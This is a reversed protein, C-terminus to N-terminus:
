RTRPRDSGTGAQDPAGSQGPSFRRATRAAAATAEGVTFTMETGFTAAASGFGGVAGDLWVVLDYQGPPLNGAMLISAPEGDGDQRGWSFVITGERSLMIQTSGANASAFTADLAYQMAAGAVSFQIALSTGAHAAGGVGDGQASYQATASASLTMTASRGDAAFGPDASQTIFASQTSSGIGEYTCTKSSLASITANGPVSSADDDFVEGSCEDSLSGTEAFATSGRSLFVLLGGSAVAASVQEHGVAIGNKTALIDVVVQTAGAAATIMTQTRGDLGTASQVPNASGGSVTYTVVAGPLPVLDGPATEQAVVVQLATPVEPSVQAPFDHQLSTAGRFVSEEVGIPVQALTVGGEPSFLPLLLQAEILMGLSSETLRRVVATFFGAANTRGLVEFSDGFHLNSGLMHVSFAADQREGGIELALDVDISLDENVPMPDALVIGEVVAHACLGALTQEETLGNEASDLGTTSALWNLELIAILVEIEPQTTCLQEKLNAIGDRLKVAMLGQAAAIDDVLVEFWDPADYQQAFGDALSYWRLYEQIIADRLSLGQGGQIAPVVVDNLYSRLVTLFRERRDAATEDICLIRLPLSLEPAECSFEPLDAPEALGVGAGSFHPVLVQTTGAASVAATLAFAAADGEYTFGVPLQEAIPTASLGITLLAPRVLLLGSPELQVAATLGGSYPLGAIAAVPTMAIEVEGTLAGAPMELAFAIGADNLTTLTGGEPGLMAAVRHAAEVTVNAAGPTVPDEGACDVLMPLLLSVTLLVRAPLNSKM